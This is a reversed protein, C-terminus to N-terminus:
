TAALQELFAQFERMNIKRADSPHIVLCLERSFFSKRSRLLFSMAIMRIAVEPTLGAIRSQGQGILPVNIVAGNSTDDVADWVNQLAVEVGGITGSAKNKKDMDTYAVCYFDKGFRDLVTAVTGIAYIETRGLKEIAGISQVGHLAHRIADWMQDESGGFIEKLMAGQVSNEAIIRNSTTVDFSSSMGVLVSGKQKFLDGVVLRIATRDSIFEVYPDVPRMYAISWVLATIAIAVPVLINGNFFSPVFVSFITVFIALVGVAALYAKSFNM